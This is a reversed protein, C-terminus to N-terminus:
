KEQWPGVFLWRRVHEAVARLRDDSIRERYVGAMTADVHGMVHDVAPQDKSEDAVTRFSHRLAYFNRHGNLGLSKLLKAMQKPLEDNRWIKLRGKEGEAEGDPDTGVKVTVWPRGYRTLFVLRDHAKDLPEPRMALAERIAQVTEPWLWCRRPIGTKSRAYNAWGGGDRGNLDLNDISLGACDANGYGCNIGLLIMARLPQGANELLTRIELAEFMGPGKAARALRLVKRSPRKFNPGFRVPREILGSDDAFRFISRVRQIENGLRVPGFKGALAARFMAFDDTSLDSVLRSRGFHEFIRGCTQYYEQFTRPMIERTDLLHRKNTLFRNVLDKITLGDGTVRPTRGAHLDDKQDLYRKLAGDPDAWPGFYHLKGRIKKAWRGTAHPFLPYDPYPKSPKFSKRSRKSKAM